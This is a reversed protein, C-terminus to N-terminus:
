SLDIELYAEVIYVSAALTDLADSNDRLIEVLILDSAAPQTGLTFTDDDIVNATGTTAHATPGQTDTYAGDLAETNAVHRTSVQFYANGTTGPSAWRLVIKAAPTGGIANPVTVVGYVASDLTNDLMEWVGLDFDPAPTTLPLVTWLSEGANASIGPSRLDIPIRTTDAM